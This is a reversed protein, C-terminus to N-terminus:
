NTPKAPSRRVKAIARLKVDKPSLSAPQVSEESKEEHLVESTRWRRALSLQEPTTLCRGENCLPWREEGPWGSTSDGFCKLTSLPSRRPRCCSCAAHEVRRESPCPGTRRSQSCRPRGQLPRRKPIQGLYSQKEFTNKKHFTSLNTSRCVVPLQIKRLPSLFSLSLSLSLSLIFLSPLLTYQSYQIRLIKTRSKIDNIGSGCTM